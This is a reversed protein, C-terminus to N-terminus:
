RKNTPPTFKVREAKPKDAVQAYEWGKAILRDAMKLAKPVSGAAITVEAKAGKPKGVVVFRM